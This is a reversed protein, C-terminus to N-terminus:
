FFCLSIIVFKVGILTMWPMWTCNRPDVVIYDIFVHWDKDLSHHKTIHRWWTTLCHNRELVYFMKSSLHALDSDHRLMADLEENAEQGLSSWSAHINNSVHLVENLNNYPSVYLAWYNVHYGRIFENELRAVDVENIPPVVLLCRLRCMIYICSIIFPELRVWHIM